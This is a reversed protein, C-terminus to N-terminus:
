KRLCRHKNNNKQTEARAVQEQIERPADWINTWNSILSGPNPPPPSIYDASETHSRLLRGPCSSSSPCWFCCHLLSFTVLLVVQGEHVGWCFRLFIGDVNCQNLLLGSRASLASETCCYMARSKLVRCNFSYKKNNQHFIRILLHIKPKSIIM